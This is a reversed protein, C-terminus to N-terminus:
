QPSSEHHGTLPTRAQPDALSYEHTYSSYTHSYCPATEHPQTPTSPLPPQPPLTALSATAPDPNTTTPPPQHNEEWGSYDLLRSQSTAPPQDRRTPHSQPHNTRHNNNHQSPATPPQATLTSHTPPTRKM